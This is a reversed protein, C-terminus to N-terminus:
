ARCEKTNSIALARHIYTKAASANLKNQHHSNCHLYIDTHTPKRYLGADINLKGDKRIFVTGLFALRGNDENELTIQKSPDISNLSSHVTAEANKKIVLPMLRNWVKPAVPKRDSIFIAKHSIEKSCRCVQRKPPM